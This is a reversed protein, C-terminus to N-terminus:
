ERNEAWECDIAVELEPLRRWDFYGPLCVRTGPFRADPATFEEGGRRWFEVVRLPVSNMTAGAMCDDCANPPDGYHLQKVDEATLPEQRHFERTMGGWSFCVLFRQDCEQCAIEVLAVQQAYIDATEDPAFECYRPVAHEDWWKPPDAIRTRIDQYHHNM